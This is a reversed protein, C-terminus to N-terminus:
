LAPVDAPLGLAVRGYLTGAADWNVVVHAGAAHVDRWARQLPHTLYLANGGAGTFVLDVAEVCMRTTFAGDRRWRARAEAPFDAAAEALATAEACDALMTKEAADILAAAEALRLQLTALEAVRKGTYTAARARMSNAFEAVAGQAIGLAVGSLIFPFVSFTPLRYLAGPNIASGPSPGGAIAGVTVSRHDPVFADTVAVDKSGTGALGAAHWNDIITYDSRPVIFVRPEAAAGNEEVLAGIMTWRSPDIGSSFPWRGKLRWGGAVRSARGAPFAFASGILVDPGDGGWIEDQAPQPWMGLMWHHSALNTLVWATSGCARGVIAGIDVLARYHAESGGVRRPQLMRFLGAAHLDALTADPIRRLTETEAARERLRPLLAEARRRMEALDPVASM